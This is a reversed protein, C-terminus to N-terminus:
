RYSSMRSLWVKTLQSKGDDVSLLLLFFWKIQIINNSTLPLYDKDNNRSFILLKYWKEKINEDFSWKNDYKDTLQANVIDMTSQQGTEKKYAAFM